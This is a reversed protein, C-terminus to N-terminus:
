CERKLEAHGRKLKCNPLRNRVPDTDNGVARRTARKLLERLDVVM